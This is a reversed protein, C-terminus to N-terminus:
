LFGKAENNSLGVMQFSALQLPRGDLLFARGVVAFAPRTGRHLRWHRFLPGIWINWSFIRETPKLKEVRSGQLRSLTQHHREALLARSFELGHGKARTSPPASGIDSCRRNSAVPGVQDLPNLFALTQM